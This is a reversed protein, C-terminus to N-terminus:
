FYLIIYKNKITIYNGQLSGKTKDRIIKINRIAATKSDDKLIAQFIQIVHEENMWPDIDGIWLTRSQQQTAYSM